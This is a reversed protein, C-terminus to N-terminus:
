RAAADARAMIEAVVTFGHLNIDTDPGKFLRHELWGPERIALRYGAGARGALEEDTSFGDAAASM